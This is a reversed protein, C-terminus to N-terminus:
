KKLLKQIFPFKNEICIHIPLKAESCLLYKENVKLEQKKVYVNLLTESLYGLIRANGEDYQSFDTQNKFIELISFLWNFYDDAIEKRCVFMNHFSIENGNLFDDFSKLYEPSEDAIIERLLIYDQEKQIDSSSDIDELRTIGLRAKQPLIIDYNDLSKQIDQKTMKNLFINKAFYRRYHCFGIIDSDDNKWAWYEGTLEAYYKNLNSINDGTDDRVYDFDENLCASGCLLPKYLQKEVIDEYDFKKHTLIYM